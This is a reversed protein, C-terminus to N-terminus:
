WASDSSEREQSAADPGQIGRRGLVAKRSRGSVVNM